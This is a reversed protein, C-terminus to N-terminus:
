NVQYLKLEKARYEAITITEITYGDKLYKTIAAGKFSTPHGVEILMGDKNRLLMVPENNNM